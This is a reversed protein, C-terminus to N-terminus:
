TMAKEGLVTQILNAVQTPPIKQICDCPKGQLCNPCNPNYVLAYVKAGVPGWRGPHVPRRPVFLGIAVKGLAAALHLPGTSGSVLADCRDIFTLLHALDLKGTMDIVKENDFPFHPRFRKGEEETGTVFIQFRDSPLLRVLSKYNPIGWEPASGKSGPHLIIRFRHDQFISEVWEPLPTKPQLGYYHPIEELSPIRKELLSHLLFFNLQAEHLNSFRRSFPIRHNCFLWHFWRRSTGVRHKVKALLAGVAIPLSPFVHLITDYNQFLVRGKWWQPSEIEDWCHVHDVHKCAHVVPATYRQCVFGIEIEPFRTKLYGALPLTLVVDGIRDTRSILVKEM